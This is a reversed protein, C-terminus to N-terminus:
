FTLINTFHLKSQDLSSDFQIKDSNVFLYIGDSNDIEQFGLNNLKIATEKDLTKIFKNKM